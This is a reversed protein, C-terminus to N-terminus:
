VCSGAVCTLGAPCRDGCAGCHQRDSTTDVCDYIEFRDACCFDTATGDCERRTDGCVCRRGDCRSARTVDCEAGCAGCDLLDRVLNACHPERGPSVCCTSESTGVCGILFDGCSCQSARCDDGRGTAVCDLGCLGCNEIDAAVNSCVGGGEGDACCIEGSGCASECVPGSDPPGADIGADAAADIGADAPEGEGECGALVLVVALALSRALQPSRVLGRTM